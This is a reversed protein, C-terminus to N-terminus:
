LSERERKRERKEREIWREYVCLLTLYVCANTFESLFVFVYM